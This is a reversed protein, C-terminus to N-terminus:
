SSSQYEVDPLFKERRGEDGFLGEWKILCNIVRTVLLKLKMAQLNLGPMAIATHQFISDKGRVICLYAFITSKRSLSIGKMQYLPFMQSNEEFISM